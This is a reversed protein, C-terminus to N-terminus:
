RGSVRALTLQAFDVVQTREPVNDEAAGADDGSEQTDVIGGTSMGHLSIATRKPLAPKVNANFTRRAM